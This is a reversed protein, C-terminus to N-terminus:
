PLLAFSCLRLTRLFAYKISFVQFKDALRMGLNGPASADWGKPVTPGM